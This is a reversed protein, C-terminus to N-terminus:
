ESLCAYIENNDIMAYDVAEDMYTSESQAELPAAEPQQRFLLTASMVLLMVACAAAYLWTHWATRRSPQRDAAVQLPQMDAQPMSDDIRQMVRQALQEFYGDPVLFPQKGQGIQQRIFAEQQRIDADQQQMYAEENTM